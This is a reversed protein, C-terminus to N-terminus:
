GAGATIRVVREYALYPRALGLATGIDRAAGCDNKLTEWKYGPVGPMSRLVFPTDTRKVPQPGKRGMGMRLTPPFEIITFNIQLKQSDTGSGYHGSRLM